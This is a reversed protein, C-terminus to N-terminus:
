WLFWTHNTCSSFRAGPQHTPAGGVVAFGLEVAPWYLGVGCVVVAVLGSHVTEFLEVWTSVVILVKGWLHPVPGVRWGALVPSMTQNRERIATNAHRDGCLWEGVGDVATCFHLLAWSRLCFCVFRSICLSWSTDVCPHKYSVYFSSMDTDCNLDPTSIICFIYGLIGLSDMVKCLYKCGGGKVYWGELLSKWSSCGVVSVSKNPNFTM